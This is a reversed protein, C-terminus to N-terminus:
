GSYQSTERVERPAVLYFVGVSTLQRRRVSTQLGAPRSLFANHNIVWFDLMLIIGKLHMAVM